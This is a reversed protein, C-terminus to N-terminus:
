TELGYDLEGAFAVLVLTRGWYFPLTQDYTGVSYLPCRATDRSARALMVGSYMPAVAAAAARM